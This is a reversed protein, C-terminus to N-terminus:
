TLRITYVYSNSAHDTSKEGDMHHYCHKVNVLFTATNVKAAIEARM